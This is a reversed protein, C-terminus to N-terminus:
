CSMFHLWFWRFPGVWHWLKSSPDMAADALLSQRHKPLSNPALEILHGLFVVNQQHATLFDEWKKSASVWFNTLLYTQVVPCEVCVCACKWWFDIWTNLFLGWQELLTQLLLSEGGVDISWSLFSTFVYLLFDPLADCEVLNM